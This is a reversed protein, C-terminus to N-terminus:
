PSIQRTMIISCSNCGVGADWSRGVSSSLPDRGYSLARILTSKWRDDRDLEIDLDVDNPEAAGRAFSGFLYVERIMSMPWVDLSEVIRATVSEALALALALSREMLSGNEDHSHLDRAPRSAPTSM